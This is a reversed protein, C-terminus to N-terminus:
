KQRNWGRGEAREVAGMEVGGKPYNDDGGGYNDNGDWAWRSGVGEGVVREDDDGGGDNDNKRTGVGIEAGRRTESEAKEM